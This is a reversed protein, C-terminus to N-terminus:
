KADIQRLWGAAFTRAAEMPERGARYYVKWREPKSEYQPDAFRMRGGGGDPVLAADFNVDKSDDLFEQLRRAILVKPDAPYRQEYDAMEKRANEQDNAASAAFGQKMQAAIQPDNATKEIGAEIQRIAEQMAKQMDPSMTKMNKNMEDIQKRQDAIMKSYQDDPSGKSQAAEPRANARHKEYDAKFAPTETYAKVWSFAEKVFAVRVAVPAARYAKANPYGPIIGDTFTDVLAPKVRDVHLGFDLLRSQAGLVVAGAGIAALLCWGFGRM